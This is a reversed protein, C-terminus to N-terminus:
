IHILTLVVGDRYRVAAADGYRQCRSKRGGDGDGVRCCRQYEFVVGLLIYRVGNTRGADVANRRGVGAAIGARYREIRDVADREVGIGCRLADDVGVAAGVQQTYVVCRAVDYELRKDIGFVDYKLM